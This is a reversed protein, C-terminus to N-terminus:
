EASFAKPSILKGSDNCHISPEEKCKKKAWALLSFARDKDAIWQSSLQKTADSQEVFPNSPPSHEWYDALANLSRVKAEYYDPDSIFGGHEQLKLLSSLNEQDAVDKIKPLNNESIAAYVDFRKVVGVMLENEYLVGEVRGQQGFFVGAAFVFPVSLILLLNPKNM